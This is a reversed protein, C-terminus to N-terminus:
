LITSLANNVMSEMSLNDCVFQRANRGMINIEDDTINQLVHVCEDIDNFLFGNERHSIYSYEVCQKIEESRKFTFIPLSYAMAEVISLGVWGPQFYIDAIAFLEQKVQNDYVAGFDYVNKFASFDPKLKGAGIIIFAFANPNLRQITEILLDIRRYPNEFRACFLLVRNQKIRYKRKNENKIKEVDIKVISSVDSITNNLAIIHKKPFLQTWQNKEKQMYVWAGDAFKLQYKLKWDLSHEEKLYRKVSIGQGWLIIKKRHIFKTLLLFWTTIHAFNWMLIVTDYKGFLFPIPNYFLFGKLQKNQIKKVDITSMQFGRVKGDLTNKYVYIDQHVKEGLLRFFEERYHPIYPQLILLKTM